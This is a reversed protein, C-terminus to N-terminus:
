LKEIEIKLKIKIKNYGYKKHIKEVIDGRIEIFFNNNIFNYWEDFGDNGHNDYSMMVIENIDIIKEEM